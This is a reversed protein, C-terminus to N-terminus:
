KVGFMLAIMDAIEDEGGSRLQEVISRKDSVSEDFEKRLENARREMEEYSQRNEPSANLFVTLDDSGPYRTSFQNREQVAEYLKRALSLQEELSFNNQQGEM